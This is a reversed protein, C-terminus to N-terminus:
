RTDRVVRPSSQQLEEAGGAKQARFATAPDLATTRHRVCSLCTILNEFLFTHSRPPLLHHPGHEVLPPSPEVVPGLMDNPITKGHVLVMKLLRQVLSPGLQRRTYVERGM